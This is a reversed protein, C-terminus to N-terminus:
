KRTNEETVWDGMGEPSPPHPPSALVQRLFTM